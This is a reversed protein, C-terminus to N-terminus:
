IRVADTNKILESSIINYGFSSQENEALRTIAKATYEGNDFALVTLHHQRHLADYEAPLFGRETQGFPFGQTVLLINKM